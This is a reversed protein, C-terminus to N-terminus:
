KMQATDGNTVSSPLQAFHDRFIGAEWDRRVDNTGDFQYQCGTTQIFRIKDSDVPTRIIRGDQTIIGVPDDPYNDYLAYVIGYSSIAFIELPPPPTHEVRVLDGVAWIHRLETSTVTASM